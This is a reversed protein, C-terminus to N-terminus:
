YESPGNDQLAFAILHEIKFYDFRLDSKKCYYIVEIFSIYDKLRLTQKQTPHRKIRKNQFWKKQKEVAM